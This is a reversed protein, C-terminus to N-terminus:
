EDAGYWTVKRPQKLAWVNWQWFLKKFADRTAEFTDEEGHHPQYHPYYPSQLFWEWVVRQHARPTTKIRGALLGDIRIAFDDVSALFTKRRTFTKGTFRQPDVQDKMPWPFFLNRLGDLKEYNRFAYM